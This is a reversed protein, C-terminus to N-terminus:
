AVPLTRGKKLAQREQTGINGCTPQGFMQCFCVCGGACRGCDEPVTCGRLQYSRSDCRWQHHFRSENIHIVFLVASCAISGCTKEKKWFIWKAARVLLSKNFTNQSDWLCLKSIPPKMTVLTFQQSMSRFSSLGTIRVFWLSLWWM